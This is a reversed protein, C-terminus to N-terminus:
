ILTSPVDRWTMKTASGNAWRIGRYREVTLAANLKRAIMDLADAEEIDGREKAYNAASVLHIFDADTMTVAAM